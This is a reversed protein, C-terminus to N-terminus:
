NQPAVIDAVPIDTAVAIAHHAVWSRVDVANGDFADFEGVPVALLTTGCAAGREDGALRRDAGAEGFHSKRSGIKAQAPFVRGDGLKQFGEPIHGSLETLVVEAVTVLKKGSSMAEVFEEAVEIVEISLLFRLTGVIRLIRLELLLESWAAHQMAPRVGIAHLFDRVSAGEGRLAHLRNVLLKKRRAQGKDFPCVLLALGEEAPPIGSAHVYERM